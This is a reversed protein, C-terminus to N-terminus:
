HTIRGPFTLSQPPHIVRLAARIGTALDGQRSIKEM